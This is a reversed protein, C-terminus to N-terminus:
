PDLPGSQYSLRARRRRDEKSMRKNDMLGHDNEMTHDDDGDHGESHNSFSHDVPAGGSGNKSSSTVVVGQVQQWLMKARRRREEKDNKVPVVAGDDESVEKNFGSTHNHDIPGSSLDRCSMSIVKGQTRQWLTKALRRREEKRLRVPDMDGSEVSATMNDDSSDHYTSLSRCSVSTVAGDEKLHDRRSKKHKESKKKKSKKSRGDKRHSTPEEQQHEASGNAIPEPANLEDNDQHDTSGNSCSAHLSNLDNEKSPVGDNNAEPTEGSSVAPSDHVSGDDKDRKPECDEYEEHRDESGNSFSEHFPGDHNNNKSENGHINSGLNTCSSVTASQQLWLLRARRRKEEKSLKLKSKKGDNDASRKTADNTATQIENVDEVADMETMSNCEEKSAIEKSKENTFRATKDAVKYDQEQDPGLKTFSGLSGM